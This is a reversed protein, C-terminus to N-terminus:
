IMFSNKFFKRFSQYQLNEIIEDWIIEDHYKKVFLAIEYAKYIFRKTKPVRVSNLM